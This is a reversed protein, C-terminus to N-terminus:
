GSQRAEHDVRKLGANAMAHKVDYPIKVPPLMLLVPEYTLLIGAAFHPAGHRHDHNPHLPINMFFM